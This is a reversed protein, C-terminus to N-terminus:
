KKNLIKALQPNAVHVLEYDGQKSIEEFKKEGPYVKTYGKTNSSPPIEYYVITKGNDYSMAQPRDLQNMLTHIIFLLLLLCAGFFISGSIANRDRRVIM